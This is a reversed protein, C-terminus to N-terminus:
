TTIAGSTFCTVDGIDECIELDFDCAALFLYLLLLATTFLYPLTVLPMYLIYLSQM